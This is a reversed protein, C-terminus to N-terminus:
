ADGSIYLYIRELSWSLLEQDTDVNYEGLCLRREVDRRKVLGNLRVGNDLVWRSMENCAGVHDGANLKKLLTSKAFAGQGVNLVFSGYAVRENDSIPVAVLRLVAKDAVELDKRHLEDCELASYVRGKVVDRGTHGYCVTLIGGTDEYPTTSYGEFYATLALGTAVVGSTVAKTIWSPLQIRM